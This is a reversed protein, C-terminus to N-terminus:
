TVDGERSIFLRDAIEDNHLAATLVQRKIVFMMNGRPDPLALLARTSEEVDGRRLAHSTADAAEYFGLVEDNNPSGLGRQRVRDLTKKTFAFM